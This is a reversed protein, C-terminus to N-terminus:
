VENTFKDFKLLNLTIPKNTLMLNFNEVEDALHETWNASHYKDIPRPHDIHRIGSLEDNITVIAIRIAYAQIGLFCDEGGWAGLFESNFVESRGYYYNNLRKLLSIAEINMAINCSWVITATYLLESNQILYDNVKNFLRLSKLKQDNDRQDLWNYKSEKRRGVSLTPIGYSNARKHSKILDAEPVCDGDIFVFLECGDSIARDIAQNRRDGTLFLDQSPNNTPKGIYHPTDVLDLIEYRCKLRSNDCISKIEAYDERSNRDLTPYVIDPLESMAEIASVLRLFYKSQNYIPIILATKM